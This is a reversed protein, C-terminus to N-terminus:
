FGRLLRDERRRMQRQQVLTRDDYGLWHLLGHAVYRGLERAADLGARKAYDRAQVPAILIEGVVGQGSAALVATISHGKLRPGRGPVYRFSLVDTVTDHGKFRQNLRRMTAGDLLTIEIQGPVRIGLRQVAHDALRRLRTVPVSMQRQKNVLRIRTHELCRGSTM